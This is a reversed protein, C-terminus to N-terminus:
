DVIRSPAHNISFPLKKKAVFPRNVLHVNWINCYITELDQRCRAQSRKVFYIMKLVAEFWTWIHRWFSLRSLRTKSLDFHANRCPLTHAIWGIEILANGKCQCRHSRASHKKKPIFFTQWLWPIYYMKWFLSVCWSLGFFWAQPLCQWFSNCFTDTRRECDELLEGAFSSIAMFARHVNPSNGNRKPHLGTKRPIRRRQQRSPNSSSVGTGGNFKGGMSSM